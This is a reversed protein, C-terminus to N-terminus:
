RVYFWILAVVLAGLLLWGWGSGASNKPEHRKISQPNIVYDNQPPLFIQRAKVLKAQTRGLETACHGCFITTPSNDHGCNHCHAM